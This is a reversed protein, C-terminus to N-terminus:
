RYIIGYIFRMFVVNYLWILWDLKLIALLQLLKIRISVSPNKIIYKNSEPFWKRWLSYMKYKESILFPLKLNLKFFNFESEYVNSFGEKQLYDLLNYANYKVDELHKQSYTKTHANTNMQIYHYYAQPIYQVNKAHVFLKVITMDEGMGRGEPFVIGNNTYVSKRILKNWVNYKMSGQLMMKICELSSNSSPQKMYRDNKSYTLYFDSYVIDADFKVAYDVMDTIMSSDVWDDSDCHFIYEGLSNALGSNRAAPLGENEQHEIIKVQHKRNQYQSIVSFMKNVSDDQSADDVFIFEINEYTQSMLSHVCKEIYRGVNYIPVIISVLPYSM